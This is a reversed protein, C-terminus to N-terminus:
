ANERRRNWARVRKNWAAIAHEKTDRGMVSFRENQPTNEDCGHVGDNIRFAPCGCSWGFWFGDVKDSKIYAKKDCVPCPLPVTQHKSASRDKGEKAHSACMTKCRRYAGGDHRKKSNNM